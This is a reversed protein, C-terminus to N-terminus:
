RHKMLLMDRDLSDLYDGTQGSSASTSSSGGPQKSALAYKAADSGNLKAMKFNQKRILLTLPPDYEAEEEKSNDHIRKLNKDLYQCIESTASLLSVQSGIIQKSLLKSAKSVKPDSECDLCKGILQVLRACDLRRMLVHSVTTNCSRALTIISKDKIFPFLEDNRVKVAEASTM